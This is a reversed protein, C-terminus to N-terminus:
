RRNHLRFCMFISPRAVEKNDVYSILEKWSRDSFCGFMKEAEVMYKESSGAYTYICQNIDAIGQM